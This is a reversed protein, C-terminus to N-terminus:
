RSFLNPMKNAQFATIFWVWNQDYYNEKEGWYGRQDYKKEILNQYIKKGLDEEVINFIALPGVITSLSEYTVQSVGDLSYIAKFGKRKEWESKFFPAASSLYIKAEYTNFWEADLAIRFFTRFADFGYNNADRGAYQTAIELDGTVNKVLFWNPILYSENQSFVGSNQIIDLTFYSDSALRLWDNDPDVLAFIRYHAPSFYSPNVLHSNERASNVSSTLFYIGNIQKVNQRWIDKIIVLAEKKYMEEGWTKYAFLLSLAIDLDADSANETDGQKYENGIKKWEWSFLKDQIRHQMNDKTWKWVGDFTSKDQMIVARLMVYAQGESSTRNQSPDVVQGYSIIFNKKYFTWADSLLMESADKKRVLYVWDGNTSFYQDLNLYTNNKGKWSELLVSNSLANKILPFQNGKIQRITEHTLLIFDINRWDNHLKKERVDPDMEIKWVWDANNFIPDGKYRSEHLDVYAYDDIAITSKPSINKKIWEIASIQPNTENRSLTLLLSPYYQILLGIGLCFFPIRVIRYYKSYKQSVYQLLLAINLAFFPILLIVYFDIVLGGRLFFILIGISLFASVRLYKNFISFIAIIGMSIFGAFVIFSDKLLWIKVAMMYDSGLHWFPLPVGRQLQMIATSILSVHLNPTIPPFFEHKLLAYIVYLSATFLSFSLWGAIAFLRHSIHTRTFVLYLLGPIFFIANEKTLIAIGFFLGSIMCEILTVRSKYLIALSALVWFIMLNDLLVRRQFYIALPSIGFFVMATLGSWHSKTMRKTIFYLLIASVIHIVLMFYRGSNVSTGFRFFGGSLQTWLSIFIWGGPPHDYWYTYPALKGLKIISWAQSLYTGEDNEYYPFSFMNVGHLLTIFVLLFIFQARENRLVRIINQM